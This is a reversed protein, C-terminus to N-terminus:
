GPITLKALTRGILPPIGKGQMLTVLEAFVYEGKGWINGKQIPVSLTYFGPFNANTQKEEIIFSIKNSSITGSGAVQQVKFSGVQLGEVATGDTKTAYVCILIDNSNNAFAQGNCGEAIVDLTDM